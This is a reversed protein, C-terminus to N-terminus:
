TVPFLTVGGARSEHKAQKDFARIGRMGIREWVNQVVQLLTRGIVLARAISNKMPLGVLLKM